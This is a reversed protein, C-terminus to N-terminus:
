NELSHPFVSLSKGRGVIGKGGKESSSINVM